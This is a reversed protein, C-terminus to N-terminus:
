LIKERKKPVLARLQQKRPWSVAKMIEIKGDRGMKCLMINKEKNQKRRYKKAHYVACNM